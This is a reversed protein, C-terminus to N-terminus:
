KNRYCYESSHWETETDEHWAEGCGNPCILVSRNVTHTVTCVATVPKGDVKLDTNVEHTTTWHGMHQGRSVLKATCFACYIPVDEASALLGVHCFALCAVTLLITIRKMM